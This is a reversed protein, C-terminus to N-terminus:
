CRPLAALLTYTFKAPTGFMKALCSLRCDFVMIINIKDQLCIFFDDLLMNFKEIITIFCHCLVM